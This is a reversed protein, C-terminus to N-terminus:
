NLFGMKKMLAIYRPDSRLDDMERQNRIYQLAASREAYAKELWFFAQEKDGLVAFNYGISAPDVYGQKARQLDREAIRLLATRYGSKAYIREAETASALRDQDGVLAEARKWEAFWLDYQGWYRYADALRFVAPAYNPDMELVKKMNELCLDDRRADCYAISVIDNYKLNLPELDVARKAEAIAEDYRGMTSLTLAYWSHANGDKPNLALARRFEADAYRWDFLSAHVGGLVSHAEALTEDLALAKQAMDRAKLSAERNPIPSVDPVIYYYQALGVYANAYNPDRQIAETFSQKARGMSPQTRQELFYRGKLYLQFAEPDSTGSRPASPTTETPNQESLRRAIAHSIDQQVSVLDSLKRDYREGWLNRNNRADILESSITLQDGRQLLRGTVVADVRLEKAITELDVERGKYRFVSSRSLVALNPLRSLDNILSETIGDSLYETDPNGGLNGFPLVAISSIQNSAGRWRLGLWSLVAILLVGVAVALVKRPNKPPRRQEVDAGTHMHVSSSDRRMRKLDSHIDAAHQYRLAPDKELAKNIIHELEVPLEPNIRVPSAPVKHLIADYILASTNAGFAMRGVAMEYLVAGFSFLDTRRDLMEGRAQEPSMYAITGVTTGPSTLHNDDLTVVDPAVLPDTSGDLKALGFDLIKAQGRKTIFINAPKIDRHVINETHAADLADAIQVALETLHQLSIPGARLRDRLTEGALLEMVIFYRGQHEAIDHITCINPHNLASAARAERRFRELAQPDGVLQDPLFKLAVHRGLNLDEAEYVVGMGGDGIKQIIRYHSITTGIM